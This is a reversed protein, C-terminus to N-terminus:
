PVVPSRTTSDDDSNYESIAVGGATAGALATVNGTTLFGGALAPAMAIKMGGFAPIDKVLMSSITSVYQSSVITNNSQLAAMKAEPFTIITVPNLAGECSVAACANSIQFARLGESKAWQPLSVEKEVKFDQNTLGVKRIFNEFDKGLGKLDVANGEADTKYTAMEYRLKENKSKINATTDFVSMSLYIDDIENDFLYAARIRSKAEKMKGDNNIVSVVFPESLARVAIMRGFQETNVRISTMTFTLNNPLSYDYVSLDFSQKWTRGINEKTKFQLSSLCNNNVKELLSLNGNNDSSILGSKADVIFTVPQQVESNQTSDFDNSYISYRTKEDSLREKEVTLLSEVQHKFQGDGKYEISSLMKQHEIEVKSNDGWYDALCLPSCFVFFSLIILLFSIKISKMKNGKLYRQYM